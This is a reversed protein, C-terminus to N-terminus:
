RVPGFLNERNKRTVYWVPRCWLTGREIKEPVALIKESNKEGFPGGQMKKLNQSLISTSFDWLTGGETKQCQSVKEFIQKEELPDGRWSRCFHQCNRFHGGKLAGSPEYKKSKRNELVTFQCKSTRKSNKLRPYPASKPRDRSTHRRISALPPSPSFSRFSCLYQWEYFTGGSRAINWLDLLHELRLVLFGRM